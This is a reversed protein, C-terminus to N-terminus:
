NVLTEYLINEKDKIFENISSYVDIKQINKRTNNLKDLEIIKEIITDFYSLKIIKYTIDNIFNINYLKRLNDYIKNSESKSKSKNDNIYKYAWNNNDINNINYYIIKFIKKILIINEIEDNDNINISNNNNILKYFPMHYEQSKTAGLPMGSINKKYSEIENYTNFRANILKSINIIQQESLKEVICEYAYENDFKYKNKLNIIQKIQEGDDLQM